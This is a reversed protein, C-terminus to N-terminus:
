PTMIWDAMYAMIIDKGPAIEQVLLRGLSTLECILRLRLYCYEEAIRARAPIKGILIDGFANTRIGLFGYRRM